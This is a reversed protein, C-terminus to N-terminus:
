GDFGVGKIKRIDDIKNLDTFYKMEGEVATFTWYHGNEAVHLLSIEGNVIDGTQGESVPRAEFIFSISPYGDQTLTALGNEYVVNLPAGSEDTMGFLQDITHNRAWAPDKISEADLMANISRGDSLTIKISNDKNEMAEITNIIKQGFVNSLMDTRVVIYGVPLIISLAMCAILVIKAKKLYPLLLVGLIFAGAALGLIGTKSQSALLTVILTVSTIAALIRRWIKEGKVILYFMYPLVLAVYSGVYNPNYLTVYAMGEGFNLKVNFNTMDNHRAYEASIIPKAWDSQIWDLGMAQFVGLIGVITAGILLANLLFRILDVTRAYGFGRFFCVVYALIVFWGEWQEYGGWFATDAHASFIASALSFLGFVGIAILPPLSRKETLFSRDKKVLMYTLIFLVVIGILRLFFTKYYLFFDYVTGGISFWNETQLGSDYTHIVVILPIVAIAFVVPIFWWKSIFSTNVAAASITKSTNNKSNNRSSNNSGTNSRTSTNAATRKANKQKM